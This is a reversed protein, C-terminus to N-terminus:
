LIVGPALLSCPGKFVVPDAANAAPSVVFAVLATAATVKLFKMVNVGQILLKLTLTDPVKRGAAKEDDSKSGESLGFQRFPKFGNRAYRM